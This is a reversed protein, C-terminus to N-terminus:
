FCLIFLVYKKSDTHRLFTSGLDSIFSINTVHKRESETFFVYRNDSKITCRVANQETGIRCFEKNNKPAPCNASAGKHQLIM